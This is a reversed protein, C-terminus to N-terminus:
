VVRALRYVEDTQPPAKSLSKLNRHCSPNANRALPPNRAFATSEPRAKLSM